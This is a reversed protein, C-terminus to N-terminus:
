FSLGTQSSIAAARFSSAPRPSARKCATLLMDIWPSPLDQTFATESALRSGLNWPKLSLFMMLNYAPKWELLFEKNAPWIWFIKGKPQRGSAKCSLQGSYASLTIKIRWILFHPLPVSSHCDKPTKMKGTLNRPQLKKVLNGARQLGLNEQRYFSSIQTGPCNHLNQSVITCHASCLPDM